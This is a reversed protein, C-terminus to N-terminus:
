LGHQRPVDPLRLRAVFEERVDRIRIEKIGMLEAKHPGARPRKDGQGLDATFTVVEAGLETQLWKLIISTDLGGSYALVVKKVDKWKTMRKNRFPNPRSFGAIPARKDARAGAKAAAIAVLGSGTGLDLVSRGTALNPNAILHHALALGGPWAYAWYPSGDDSIRGLGSKPTAQHMLIQPLTPWRMGADPARPHIPRINRDPSPKKIGSKMQITKGVNVKAGSARCEENLDIM